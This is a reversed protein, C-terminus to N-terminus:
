PSKRLTILRESLGVQHRTGNSAWRTGRPRLTRDSRHSLGIEVGLIGILKPTDIYVGYPASDGIVWLVQGAEDLNASVLELVESLDALYSPLLRDYEKGNQRARRETSLEAALKEAAKRTRRFLRLREWAAETRIQSTQQTSAIVMGDRVNRCMEAWTRAMGFFYLELRTADAYDFNNLYPPSSLCATALRGGLLQKWAHRSRSDGLIVRGRRPGDAEVLDDILWGVRKLFRDTPSSFRPTRQLAPRQHPWGVKVCAVERLVGVLAIRLYRRLNEPATAIGARLSVLKCLTNGDFCRLVLPSEKALQSAKKSAIVADARAAIDSAVSALQQARERSLRTFKLAAIEAILPHTEIGRFSYGRDVAATGATGVGAFPDVIVSADPGLANLCLDLTTPAFGAPYRFWRDFPRSASVGNPGGTQRPPKVQM